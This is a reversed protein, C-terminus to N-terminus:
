GNLIIHTRTQCFVTLLSGLQLGLGKVEYVDILGKQINKEAMMFIPKAIDELVSLLM